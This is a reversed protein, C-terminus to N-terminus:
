HNAFTELVELLGGVLEHVVGDNGRLRFGSPLNGMHLKPFDCMKM